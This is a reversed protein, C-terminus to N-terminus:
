EAEDALEAAAGGRLTKGIGKVSNKWLMTVTFCPDSPDLWQEFENSLLESLPLRRDSPDVALAAIDRSLNREMREIATLGTTADFSDDDTM